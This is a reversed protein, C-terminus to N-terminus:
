GGALEDALLEMLLGDHWRGDNGREYERLVGVPRFGVKRYAAIAPANDAAPDITFRHHGHADILHRLLTRIADPGLGRGHVAPDLFLDLNAHRYQPDDEEAWQIAGIVRGDPDEIAFLELEDDDLARRMDSPLDDGGGWRRFVEPTRRIEVLREVDEPGARRLRVRAGELTEM